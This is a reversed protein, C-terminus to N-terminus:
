QCLGINGDVNSHKLINTQMGFTPSLISTKIPNIKSVQAQSCQTTRDTVPCCMNNVLMPKLIFRSLVRKLDDSFSIKAIADVYPSIFHKQLLFSIILPM